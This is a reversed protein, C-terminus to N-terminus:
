IMLKMVNKALIRQINKGDISFEYTGDENDIWDEVVIGAPIMKSSHLDESCEMIKIRKDQKPFFTKIPEYSPMKATGVEYEEMCNHPIKADVGNVKGIFFIPADKCQVPDHIFSGCKILEGTLQNTCNKNVLMIM